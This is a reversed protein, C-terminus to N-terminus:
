YDKLDIGLVEEFDATKVTEENGAKNVDDELLGLIFSGICYPTLFIRELEADEM